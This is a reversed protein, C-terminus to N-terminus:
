AAAKSNVWVETIFSREIMQFGLQRFIERCQEVGKEGLTWEHLEVIVLRFNKLADGSTELVELEGGEIDMILVSFPGYRECLELTSRGPMRVPIGARNQLSGGTIYQPHLSFTVEKQISVACSEILFGCRNLQRNRHIAPLCFPNAEVVVHRQPERLMKNTICSIVGLCAGFELVTDTPRLYKPILRREDVEYEKTLFCARFSLRTINKPIIFECGGARFRGGSLDFILGWFPRIIKDMFQGCLVGLPKRIIPHLFRRALARIKNTM